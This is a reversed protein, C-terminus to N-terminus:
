QSFPKKKQGCIPCVWDSPIDKYETGAKIGEEKEGKEPDYTYGCITCQYKDM